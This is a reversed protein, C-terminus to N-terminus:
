SHQPLYVISSITINLWTLIHNTISDLGVNSIERSQWRRQAVSLEDVRLGTMVKSSMRSIKPTRPLGPTLAVESAHRGIIEALRQDVEVRRQKTLFVILLSQSDKFYIELSIYLYRLASWRIM